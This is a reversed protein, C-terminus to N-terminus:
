ISLHVRVVNFKSMEKVMKHKFIEKELTKGPETM